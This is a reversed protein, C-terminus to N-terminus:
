PIRPACGLAGVARQKRELVAREGREGIITVAMEIGIFKLVPYSLHAFRLRGIRLRPTVELGGVIFDSELIRAVIATGIEFRGAAVGNRMLIKSRQQHTAVARIQARQRVADHNILIAGGPEIRQRLGRHRAGSNDILEILGDHVAFRGKM